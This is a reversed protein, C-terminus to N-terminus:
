TQLAIVKKLYLPFGGAWKNMWTMPVQGFLNQADNFAAYSKPHLDKYTQREADILETLKSRDM